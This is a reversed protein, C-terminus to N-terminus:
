SELIRKLTAFDAEIAAQDAQTPNRLTFVIVSGAGDEIVRMPNYFTEGDVTAWHDLVGLENPEAFRVQMDASVGAAWHPLNEVRSVYAYVEAAPRDIHQSIHVSERM